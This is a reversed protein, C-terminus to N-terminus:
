GQVDIATASADTWVPDDRYPDEDDPDIEDKSESDSWEELIEITEEACGDM